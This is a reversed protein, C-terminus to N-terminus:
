SRAEGALPVRPQLLRRRVSATRAETLEAVGYAYALMLLAIGLGYLLHRPDPQWNGLPDLLGRLLLL